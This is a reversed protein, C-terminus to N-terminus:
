KRHLKVITEVKASYPLIDLPIITEIDYYQKLDELGKALSSSHDSVFIIDKVKSLIFSQQMAQTLEEGRVVVVDYCKKKCSLVVAEDINKCAFSVNEKHLFKANDKADRIHYSKEDFATIENDISLEMLGIGCNLSLVSADKPIFSRIIDLKLKEMEPHLPFESKISYLYKQDFCQFPLYSEGYIKKYGQKEFEQYRSTNVTYFISKVEEIKAIEKTAEEKIGNEGTVFVIQLKNDINRLKIFRLGKKIKDNYDRVQYKNLIDEIKQLCSNVVPDQMACQDMLTLYKTARQYIGVHIKGKFYTVPLAIVQKYGKIKKAPYVKKIPLEDVHFSTYKKLADKLIGKKYALHQQYALCTLACGQCNGSEKCFSKERYKSTQVYNVVQGKLFKRNKEVIEVDVIEEPLANEIFCIKKDIYGIGEGNIGIKKIEVREM